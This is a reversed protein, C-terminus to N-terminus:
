RGLPLTACSRTSWEGHTIVTHFKHTQVLKDSKVGVLLYVSPFSLKAQRLQLAHSM